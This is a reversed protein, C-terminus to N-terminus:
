VCRSTYLLFVYPLEQIGSSVHSRCWEYTNHIHQRDMEEFVYVRDCELREGLFRLLQNLGEEADPAKRIKKLCEGVFQENYAANEKM